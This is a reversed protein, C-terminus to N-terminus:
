EEIISKIKDYEQKDKYNSKPKLNNRQKDLTDLENCLPIYKEIYEKKNNDLYDIFDFLAQIKPPIM